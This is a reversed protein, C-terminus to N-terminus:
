FSEIVKRIEKHYIMYLAPRSEIIKIQPCIKKAEGVRCIKVGMKKAEYSSAIICGSDGTYPTVGIPRGRLDPRVQQEVSAFFSNMVLFLTQYDKPSIIGMAVCNYGKERVFTSYIERRQTLVLETCSLCTRFLMLNGTIWLM